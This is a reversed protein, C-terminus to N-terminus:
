ERYEEYPDRTIRVPMTITSLELATSTAAQPKMEIRIAMPWVDTRLWRPVWRALEPAPRQEEYMIRCYSLKDALVFSFPGTEIPTFIPIQGPVEPLSTYGTCIPTRSGIGTYLRENVVLRVGEANEGPIVQFELLTPRGRGAESLSYSSALRMADPAGEFLLTPTRSPDSDSGCLTLAPILDAIEERLIREVGFVRRNDMIRQQAKSSGALSIRLAFSMGVALLAVLSVSVLLELLTVGAEPGLLSSARQVDEKAKNM